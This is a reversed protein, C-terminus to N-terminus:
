KDSRRTAVAVLYTPENKESGAFKRVAFPNWLNNFPPSLSPISDVVAQRKGVDSEIGEPLFRSRLSKEIPIKLHQRVYFGLRNSLKGITSSFEDLPNSPFVQGFVGKIEFFPCLVSIFEAKTMESCHFPNSAHDHRYTSKNPTSVIFVGQSKLIRFAERVFKEPNPVHEITEFSVIADLSSPEIPIQEASGVRYDLGYKKRAHAVAEPSIDVGVVSKATKSLAHTGYGEGSAIDMVDLGKIKQCAFAYRFVHEWFVGSHTKEPIMREGTDPMSENM